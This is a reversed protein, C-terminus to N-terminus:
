KRFLFYLVVAVLGLTPWPLSPSPTPAPAAPAPFAVPLMPTAPMADDALRATEKTRAM